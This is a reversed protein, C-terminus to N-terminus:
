DLVIAKQLIHTRTKEDLAVGKKNTVKQTQVMRQAHLGQNIRSLPDTDPQVRMIDMRSARAQSHTLVRGWVLTPQGLYSNM